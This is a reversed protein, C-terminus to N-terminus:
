GTINEIHHLWTQGKTILIEIVDLRIDQYDEGSVMTYYAATRKIHRIKEANIAECPLGYNQNKRTKVEIFVLETGDMAIIDIEGMMCRFNKKLIRYGKKILYREAMREGLCGLSM